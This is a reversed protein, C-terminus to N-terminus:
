CPVEVAARTGGGPRSVVHLCGGADRRIVVFSAARVLRAAPLSGAAFRGVENRLLRRLRGHPRRTGRRTETFATPPTAGGKHLLTVTTASLSSATTMERGHQGIDPCAAIRRQDYSQTSM